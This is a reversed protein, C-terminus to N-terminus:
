LPVTVSLSVVLGEAPHEPIEIRVIVIFGAVTMLAWDVPVCVWHMPPVKAAIETVAM